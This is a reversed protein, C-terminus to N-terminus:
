SRRSTKRPTAKPQHLQADRPDAGDPRAEGAPPPMSDGKRAARNRKGGRDGQITTDAVKANEAGVDSKRADVM